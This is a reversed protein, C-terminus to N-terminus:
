LPESYRVARVKSLECLWESKEEFGGTDAQMYGPCNPCQDERLECNYCEKPHRIDAFLGPLRNWAPIFGEELPQTYPSDFTGCPLMKGDWSIWYMSKTALCAIIQPPLHMGFDRDPSLSRFFEEVEPDVPDKEAEDLNAYYRYNEMDLDLCEQPSMRCKAAGSNEVRTSGFVLYNIAFRKTFRDAIARVQELEDMNDKIFTTRVELNTPLKSFMELGRVTKEFGAASGCVKEYTEPSAGYLTVAVATPPYKSFLDFYKDSMLTANTNITIIFGMQCLESYIETFDTRLLPEGGTLLLYLSGADAAQYGFDIWEKATLERGQKKAQEADLSVYCMKCRLNCRATLEFTASLPVHLRAAHAAFTETQTEWTRANTNHSESSTM